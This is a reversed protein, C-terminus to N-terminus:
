VSGRTARVAWRGFSPLLSVAALTPSLLSADMLLKQFAGAWKLRSAFERRWAKAYIERAVKGSIEGRLQACLVAASLEGSRAAMAMGDGALPHIFGAADGCNLVGNTVPTSQGFSINGTALWPMQMEANKLRERLHPLRCLLWKWFEQPARGQLSDYRALLCVNLTGSEIQSLGCYGGRWFHLEVLGSPFHAGRFHTKLGIYKTDPTSGARPTLFSAHRGAANVVSRARLEGQTTVITWGNQNEHVARVRTKCCLQAGANQAARILIEDLRFRSLSLANRPLAIELTQGGRAVIRSTSIEVAGAGCIKELVGLRAFVSKSEPSLFEGCVKHRPFTGAELVVVRAGNQALRMAACAGGIGGGLIAADFQNDTTLPRHDTM